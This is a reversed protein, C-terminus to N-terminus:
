PITSARHAFGHDLADAADRVAVVRPLLEPRADDQQRALLTVVGPLMRLVDAPERTDDIRKACPLVPISQEDERWAVRTDLVGDPGM